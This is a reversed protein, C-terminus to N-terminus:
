WLCFPNIPLRTVLLVPNGFLQSIHMFSSPHFCHMVDTCLIKENRQLEAMDLGLVCLPAIICIPPQSVACLGNTAYLICLNFVFHKNQFVKSLHILLM